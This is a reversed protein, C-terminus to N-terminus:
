YNVGPRQAKTRPVPLGGGRERKMRTLEAKLAKVQSEDGAEQGGKINNKM